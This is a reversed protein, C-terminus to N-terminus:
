KARRLVYLHRFDKSNCKAPREVEGSLPLCIRLEDKDLAYIGKTHANFKMAKPTYVDIAKPTKTPDIKIPYEAQGSEYLDMKGASIVIKKPSAYGADLATKGNIEHTVVEWTGKLAKLDAAPTTKPEPDAGVVVPPIAILLVATM